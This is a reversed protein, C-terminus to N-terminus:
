AAAAVQKGSPPLLLWENARKELLELLDKSEWVLSSREHINRAADIEPQMQLQSVLKTLGVGTMADGMKQNADELFQLARQHANLRERLECKQTVPVVDNYCLNAAALLKAKIAMPGYHHACVARLLVMGYVGPKLKASLAAGMQTPLAPMIAAALQRHLRESVQVNLLEFNTDSMGPDLCFKRLIKGLDDRQGYVFILLSEMFRRLESELITHGGNLKDSYAQWRREQPPPSRSRSRHRPGSSPPSGSRGSRGGPAAGDPHLAIGEAVIAKALVINIKLAKQVETVADGSFRPHMFSLSALTKYGLNALAKAYGPLDTSLDPYRAALDTLWSIIYAENNPDIAARAPSPPCPDFPRRGVVM